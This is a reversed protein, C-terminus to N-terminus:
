WRILASAWTFGAGFAALCVLQGRKINGLRHVEDLLMPISAASCNGYRAINSHVRDPALHLQHAVAENIRQNAQHFFFHDVDAPKLQHDALVENVVEPLRHVAHKYVFRGEMKPFYTRDLLKEQSVFPEAAMGPGELWLKEAFRGDTHLRFSLIGREPDETPGLIVAGAGDGFLVAVDRGSDSFDLARSHVETGCVLVRQYQSSAVFLQGINLAYIFGSCQGRIDMAPATEMGLKRQVFASTGPFFHDPSLTACLLLDIDNIQLGAQDLARRCALEALDSPATGTEVFRREQIGSRQQIWDDSTTMLKELDANTVVKDPVSMGSALIGVKRM